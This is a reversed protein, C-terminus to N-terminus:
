SLYCARGACCESKTAPEGDPGFAEHTKLCWCAGSNSERDNQRGSDYYMDNSRLHRCPQQLSASM